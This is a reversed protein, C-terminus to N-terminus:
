QVQICFDSASLPDVQETSANLVQGVNPLLQDLGAELAAV